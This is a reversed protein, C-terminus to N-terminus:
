VYKRSRDSTIFVHIPHCMFITILAIPTVCQMFTSLTALVSSNCRSKKSEDQCMEIRICSEASISYLSAARLRLLTECSIIHAFFNALWTLILQEPLKNTLNNIFSNKGSFVLYISLIFDLDKLKPPPPPDYYSTYLVESGLGM